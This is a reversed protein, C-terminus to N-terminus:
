TNVLHSSIMVYDCIATVRQLGDILTHKVYTQDESLMGGTMHIAGIPRNKLLSMILLCKSKKTWQNDTRQILPDRCIKGKNVKDVLYEVTMTTPLVTGVGTESSNDISDFRFEVGDREIISLDQTEKKKAM